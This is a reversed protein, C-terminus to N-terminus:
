VTTTPATPIPTTVPGTASGHQHASLAVATTSSKAVVEGTVNLDGHVEVTPATITLKSSCTLEMSRVSSTDPWLAIAPAKPDGNEFFLLVKGGAPVQVRLGPIGHRIPVRTLGTGRMKEADPIIELTGDSTQKVVRSPYMRMYDIKPDVHQGIVAGIDEALRNGGTGGSAEFMVTQRLGSASVETTVRSVNRDMFRVGPQLTPAEPAILVSDRGPVRDIEDYKPTHVIWKEVGLWIPGGRTVRWVLGMEDACQKIAASAKQQPRSWRSVSHSRVSDDTVPSLEEGTAMMIDSLVVSLPVGLYYKAPLVSALKAAGGVMQCHYRGANVSGKVITGSWTVGDVVLEVRGSLATESSVDVVASWVGYRPEQITAALVDLGALTATM